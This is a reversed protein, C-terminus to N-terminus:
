ESNQMFFLIIMIACKLRVLYTISKSKKQVAHPQITSLTVTSWTINFSSNYLNTCLYKLGGAGLKRGVQKREVQKQGFAKRGNPKRGHSIKTWDTKTWVRLQDLVFLM